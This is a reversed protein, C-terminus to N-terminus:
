EDTHIKHQPLASNLIEAVIASPNTKKKIAHLCLREFVADPIQFKRGTVKGGPLVRRRRRVRATASGRSEGAQGDGDESEGNREVPLTSRILGDPMGLRSAM